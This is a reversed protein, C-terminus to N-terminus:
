RAGARLADGLGSRREPWHRLGEALLAPDACVIARRRARTVGTYILSAHNLPSPQDPLTLLVHDFESGQAKHVTMAWATEHAPLRRPNLTRPAGHQDRLWVVPAGARLGCVGLDGNWIRNGHDNATILIPRGPYYTEELRHGRERLADTVRDNWRRAGTPGMRQATLVRAHTVAALAREADGSAAAAMMHELQPLFAELAQGSDSTLSLDQHGQQVAELAREADRQVLAEAFAGIGPQAGFRHNRWLSVTADAIPAAEAQARVDMGTAERVFSALAPGLGLQPRAAYTLDGLIQGAAVAALQDKDGVVVLRSEPTLADCLVAFIAPDVMSVEDVVVLDYPLKRDRGFRFRDDLPLYGLLRHLTKPALDRLANAREPREAARAALAEGLRAAAKGTPAAVAVRLDPRDHLLASMLKAVTTTKGTGPGGCLVTLPRSAGAVVAALQWDTEDAPAAPLLKVAELTERVQEPTRLPPQALREEVFAAIRREARFHRLTYLRDQADLVLPRPPADPDDLSVVDTQLLANRASEVAPRAPEGDDPAAHCWAALDVCVDGEDRAAGLAACVRALLASDGGTALRALLEAHRDALTKPEHDTNM